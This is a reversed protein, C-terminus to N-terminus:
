KGGAKIKLARIREELSELKEEMTEKRIFTDEMQKKFTENQLLLQNSLYLKLYLTSLTVIASVLAFVITSIIGITSWELVVQAQIM